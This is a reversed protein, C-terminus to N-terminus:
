VKRCIFARRRPLLQMGAYRPSMRVAFGARRLAKLIKAPNLLRVRHTEESRRWGSGAKRFTVMRRRLLRNRVPESVETLVAWDSGEKWFRSNMAPGGGVMVDFLFLGGPRLAHAAKKFFKDLSPGPGGKASLYNLGEGLVTIADCCPLDVDYLSSCKFRAKPANARALRIMAPSGDVSFVQFGARQAHAAWIGSGCALDVLVGGRIGAQKLIRILEPSTRRAFDGFGAHHIYALDNQYIASNM